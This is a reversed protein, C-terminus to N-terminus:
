RTNYSVIWFYDLLRIEINDSINELNEEIEERSPFNKLIEHISGNALTRIQFTDGNEGTKSIATNSGEVYRNDIMVVNSGKGLRSHFLNLFSKLKARPIHSWWFGSFGANYETKVNDLRYADSQIFKVTCNDYDRQKALEIVELNFDTALVSSASKAIFQTWYGTGCAIELVDCNEFYASLYHELIRLEKQREPKQYIRDYESARKAYYSELKERM